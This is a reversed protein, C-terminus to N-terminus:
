VSKLVGAEPAAPAELTKTRKVPRKLGWLRRRVIGGENVCKTGVWPGPVRRPYSESRRAWTTYKGQKFNVLLPPYQASKDDPM